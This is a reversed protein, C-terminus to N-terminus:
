RMEDFLTFQNYILTVARIITQSYKTMRLNYIDFFIFLGVVGFESVLVLFLLLMECLLLGVILMLM